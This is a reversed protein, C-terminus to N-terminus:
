RNSTIQSTSGVSVSYDTETVDLAESLDESSLQIRSSTSLNGGTGYTATMYVYKGSLNLSTNCTVTGTINSNLSVSQNLTGTALPSGGKQSEYIEVNQITISTEPFDTSRNKFYIKFYVTTTTGGSTFDMQDGNIGIIEFGTNTSNPVVAFSLNTNQSGQTTSAM